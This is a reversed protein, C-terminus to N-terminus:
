CRRLGPYPHMGAYVDTSKVYGLGYTAHAENSWTYYWINNGGSHPAGERYCAFDHASGDLRGMLYHWAPDSVRGDWWVEAGARPACLLAGSIFVPGSGLSCASQDSPHGFAASAAPATVLTGM